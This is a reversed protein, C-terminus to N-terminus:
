PERDLKLTRMGESVKQDGFILARKPDPDVFILILM